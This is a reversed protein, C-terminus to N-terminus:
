TNWQLACTGSSGWSYVPARLEQGDYTFTIEGAAAYDGSGALPPTTSLIEKIRVTSWGPDVSDMGWYDRWAGGFNAAGGAGWSPPQDRLWRLSLSLIKGSQQDYTVGASGNPLSLSAHCILFSLQTNNDICLIEGSDTLEAPVGGRWPPPPGRSRPPGAGGPLGATLRVGAAEDEEAPDRQEPESSIYVHGTGEEITYCVQAGEGPLSLYSLDGEQMRLLKEAVTLGLSDALGERDEVRTIRPQDMIKRDEWRSIQPPLFFALAILAAALALSAWFRRNM